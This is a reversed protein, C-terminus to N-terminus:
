RRVVPLFLTRGQQGGGIRLAPDGLLVYTDLLDAYKNLSAQELLYLQGYLVAAGLEQIENQFYAEFFGRELFDHGTALGLGTPSWSAVAGHEAMRVITEGFSASTAAAEHFYGELCTMPLMIPLRDGNTLQQLASKNLLQEEAWYEKAGHGIYSVFLAGQNMQDVIRQRCNVAPNENTCQNGLYFKFKQFAEPVLMTAGSATHVVGDAVLDSLDYFPGGGGELNDTIFILNSKWAASTSPGTQEYGITKEVMATVDAASQVPFRGILVDTLLDDGTVMAYRNDSATEGIVPDVMELYPPIFTPGTTSLYGRPDFNGDGVLLVFRVKPAPWTTYVHTLFSHIAQASMRGYNFQDYIQQVDILRVEHGQSRRYAALPATATLFDRHAIMIYDAGSTPTVLDSSDAKVITLPKRRQAIHTALYSRASNQSDAFVLNGLATSSSILRVAAPDTVDYAEVEVGSFGAVTFLWAGAAPSGFFLQDAQAQLKRQYRLRISDVYVTDVVQGPTDNLLEIRVMNTAPGLLRQPFNIPVRQVTRGSWKVEDVRQSNLYIRVHHTGKTNGALTVDLWATAESEALADAELVFDRYDTAKAGSTATLLSEYWHDYGSEMPLSSVYQVNRNRLVTAQYETISAQSPPSAARVSATIRKGPQPGYTLWYVNTHTYREQVAEGYFLVLDNPEFKGDEDKDLVRIAIEAGNYFIQLRDPAVTDVPFGAAQLDAYTLQYIGAAQLTIRYANAPPRWPIATLATGAVPQTRWAQASTYNLLTAALTAEFRADEAVYGGQGDVGDAFPLYVQFRRHHLLRGTMPNVQLPYFTLQALRQSRLLGLDRGDVLAAPYLATQEYIQPAPTTLQEVYRLSGDAATEAVATAGACLRIAEPLEATELPTITYTLPVAPPLGVLRVAMPLLPAGNTGSQGYGAVEIRQCIGTPREEQVLSYEPTQVELLIGSADSQLLQVGPVQPVAALAVSAPQVPVYTCFCTLLLLIRLLKMLYAPFREIM